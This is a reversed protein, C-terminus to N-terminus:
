GCSRWRRIDAGALGGCVSQPYAATRLAGCCRPRHTSHHPHTPHTHLHQRLHDSRGRHTFCRRARDTTHQLSRLQEAAAAKRAVAQTREEMAAEERERGRRQAEAAQEQLRELRLQQAAAAREGEALRARAAELRVGDEKVQCHLRLAEAQVVAVKATAAAELAAVHAVQGRLAAVAEFDKAAM